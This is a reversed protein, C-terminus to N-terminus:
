CIRVMDSNGNIDGNNNDEADVENNNNEDDNVLLPHNLEPDKPFKLFLFKISLFCIIQDTYRDALASNLNRDIGPIKKQFPYLQSIKVQEANHQEVVINYPPPPENIPHRPDHQIAASYPPPLHPGGM